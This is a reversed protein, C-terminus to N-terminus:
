LRKWSISIFLQLYSKVIGEGNKEMLTSFDMESSKEVAKRFLYGRSCLKDQKVVSEICDPDTPVVILVPGFCLRAVPGSSSAIKM